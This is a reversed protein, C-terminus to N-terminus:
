CSAMERKIIERVWAAMSVGKDQTYKEIKEKLTKTMCISLTQGPIAPNM